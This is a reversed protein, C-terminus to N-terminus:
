SHSATIIEVAQTCLTTIEKWQTNRILAPPALWSGGVAAVHPDRTYAALHGAQIGGLPIFRVGLHAYPATIARLYPLGGSPEAPFFKLLRCGEELALELDSPTMIGPSFSFRAQRAAGVVRRNLGPAVGFDAGAAIAQAIQEPFLITGAGALLQPFTTKIAKLADLAVPTRLTLELVTIGGELLATALPVADEVRELTVVAIIGASTIRRALNEEFLPTRM